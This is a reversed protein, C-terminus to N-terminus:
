NSHELLYALELPKVFTNFAALQAGVAQVALATPIWERINPALLGVVSGPGIGRVLLSEAVCEVLKELESYTMPAGTAPIIALAEPTLSSWEKVLDPVTRAWPRRSM